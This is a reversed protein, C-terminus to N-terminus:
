LNWEATPTAAGMPLAIHLRALRADRPVTFGLYRDVQWDPHLQWAPNLRPDTSGYPGAAGSLMENSRYNTGGADLVWAGPDLRTGIWVRGTNHIHVTFVVHRQGLYDSFGPFETQPDSVKGIGVEARAGDDGTLAVRETRGVPGPVTVELYGGSPGPSLTRVLHPTVTRDTDAPRTAVVVALALVVVAAAGVAM